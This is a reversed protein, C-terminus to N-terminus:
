SVPTRPEMQYEEIQKLIDMSKILPNWETGEFIWRFWKQDRNEYRINFFLWLALWVFSGTVVGQVLYLVLTGNELMGESIYFTTWVPLQLFLLRAVWITSSKLRAIHKQTVLIPESIDVIQILVLQYLYIIIAVATLLLQISASILFFPSILTAAYIWLNVVVTGGLGVWLMGVIITFIKIPKMTALMSKVKLRTIDETNKRNLLLSEELKKDYSKWLRLMETDEM